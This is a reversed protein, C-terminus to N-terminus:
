GFHINPNLMLPESNSDIYESADYNVAVFLKVASEIFENAAYADLDSNEASVSIPALLISLIILFSLISFIRMM